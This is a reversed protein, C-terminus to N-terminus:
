EAIAGASHGVLVVKQVGKQIDGLLGSRYLGAFAEAYHRIDILCCDSM